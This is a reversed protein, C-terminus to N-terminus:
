EIRMAYSRSVTLTPSVERNLLILPFRLACCWGMRTAFVGEWFGKGFSGISISYRSKSSHSFHSNGSATAIEQLATIPREGARMKACPFPPKQAFGDNRPLDTLSRLHDIATACSSFGRTRKRGDM